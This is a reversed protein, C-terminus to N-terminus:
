KEKISKLNDFLRQILKRRKTIIRGIGKTEFNLSLMHGYNTRTGDSLSVLVKYCPMTTGKITISHSVTSVGAVKGKLFGYETYPYENLLINVDQGVKVKGAGEATITQEGIISNKEPSICFLEDASNVFTNERWFGLYQLKGHIPAVILYKEKWQHLDNKLQNFKILLTNYSKKIEEKSTIDVKALETNTINIESLKNLYTNKMNIKTQKLNDLAGQKNEMTEKSIAGLSFLASDSEFQRTQTKLMKDLIKEENKINSCVEKNTINKSRLSARLNEYGGSHILQIYSKYSLIFDNYCSSLPGLTLNEPLHLVTNQPISESCIKKVLLIDNYIAGCDIYALATGKNVMTGETQLLHIRGNSQAVLRVPAKQATIIIEGNIADPYEIICSIFFMVLIICTLLSVIIHTWRTPMRDIIDQVEESRKSIEKKEDNEM